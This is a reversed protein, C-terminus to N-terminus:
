NSMPKFTLSSYFKENGQWEAIIILLSSLRNQFWIFFFNQQVSFKNHFTSHSIIFHKSHHSKKRKFVKLQLNTISRSASLEAHCKFRICKCKSLTTFFTKADTSKITIQEKEMMVDIHDGSMENSSAQQNPVTRLNFSTILM